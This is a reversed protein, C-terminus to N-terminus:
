RKQAALRRLFILGASAALASSTIGWLFYALTVETSWNKLTAQNSLDYAGYAVLRGVGHAQREVVQLVGHTFRKGREDLLHLLLICAQFGHEAITAVRHLRREIVGQPAALDAPVLKEVGIVLGDRPGIRRL